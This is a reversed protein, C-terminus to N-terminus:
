RNVDSLGLEVFLYKYDDSARVKGDEINKEENIYDELYVALKDVLKDGARLVIWTYCKKDEQKINYCSAQELDKLSNWKQNTARALTLHDFGNFGLSVGNEKIPFSVYPGQWGITSDSVLPVPNVEWNNGNDILPLETSTDLYYAYYAQSVSKLNNVLELRQKKEEALFLISTTALFLAVFVSLFLAVDKVLTVTNKQRYHM